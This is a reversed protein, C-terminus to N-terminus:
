GLQSLYQKGKNIINISAKTIENNEDILPTNIIEYILINLESCLNIADVDNQTYLDENQGKQKLMTEIHNLAMMDRAALKQLIDTCAGIRETLADYFICISDAQASVVNANAMNRSALKQNDKADKMIAGGLGFFVYQSIIQADSKAVGNAIAPLDVKQAIQERLTNFKRWKM